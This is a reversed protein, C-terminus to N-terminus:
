RIVIKHVDSFLIIVMLGMLLVFGAFHVMSEKEQSIAKGRIAEIILFVLRGGDLAPIPLLNMVGLNVSLLIAMNLMNLAVYYWGDSRSAEYTEGIADVIGVPGSMDQLGVKGNILMSLSEVTAKLWYRVEAASYAAVELVNGKERVGTKSFGYLYAGNESLTPTLVTEYTEGDREYTVEATEGQHLSSFLSVERYLWTRSGGISVIRDGDEMGAQEAASGPLITVVTNDYGASGVIILALVYALLFNFVPGAAVVLIRTWVSKSTFSDSAAADGEGDEGEMMCSGGFPLLKLCYRTDGIEKSLLVPGMGVSFENVRIGGRKALLFHGFEHVIVIVSFIVLALIISVM